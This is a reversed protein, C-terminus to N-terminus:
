TADASKPRNLKALMERAAGHNIGPKAISRCIDIAERLIGEPADDPLELGKCANWTAVIRRAVPESVSQEGYVTATLVFEDEILTNGGLGSEDCVALSCDLVHCRGSVPKADDLVPQAVPSEVAGRLDFTRWITVPDGYEEVLVAATELAIKKAKEADENEYRQEGTSKALVHYITIHKM